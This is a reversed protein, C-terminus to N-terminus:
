RPIEVDTRPQQYILQSPDERLSRTLDRIESATESGERLLRELEPLSDRSFSRLDTRNEAILQDLQGTAKALNDAVSAMREIATKLRPAADESIGHVSQATARFESSTRELDAALRRVEALTEPLTVSAKDVSGFARTLAAINSDSLLLEARGLVNSAVGVVEPLSSLLVDFNSRASRIVPYKEGPVVEALPENRANRLLDIYLVGTVGQLSLQAVTRDSIPTTSDIDVIVEVRSANRPDIRMAVVRGVDVGLYRVSAGRTLGSVSDDFYIEYRTYSRHERADSYWYVFLAGMLFVVLAFAGVAAYNAEREM